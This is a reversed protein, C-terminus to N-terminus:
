GTFRHCNMMAHHLRRELFESDFIFIIQNTLSQFSTCELIDDSMEHLHVMESSIEEQESVSAEDCNSESVKIAKSMRELEIGSENEDDEIENFKRRQGQSADASTSSVSSDFPCTTSSASDSSSCEFDKLLRLCKYLDRRNQALERQQSIRQQYLQLKDVTVNSLTADSSSSFSSASSASAPLAHRQKAPQGLGARASRLEITIPAKM